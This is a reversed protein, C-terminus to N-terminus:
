PDIERVYRRIDYEGVMNIIHKKINKMENDFISKKADEFPFISIVNDKNYQKHQPQDDILVTNTENYKDFTTFVKSLFKVWGRGMNNSVHTSKEINWVFIFDYAALYKEVIMNVYNPSGNSWIAMDYRKLVCHDLIEYLHPRTHVTNSALDFELLTNDIDWIILKNNEM